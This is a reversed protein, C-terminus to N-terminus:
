IIDAPVDAYRAIIERAYALKDAVHQGPPQWSSWLELNEIRNDSRDGNRHHINEDPWLPRGIHEEMVTRHQLEPRGNVNRRIYGDSTVRWEGPSNERGALPDGYKVLKTLHKPCYGRAQQSKECGDVICPPQAPRQYGAARRERATYRARCRSSCYVKPTGWARQRFQAGCQCRALKGTHEVRDTPVGRRDLLQAPGLPKGRQVRNYHLACLGKAFHSRACDEVSCGKDNAM